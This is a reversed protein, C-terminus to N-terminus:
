SMLHSRNRAERVHCVPHGRDCARVVHSQCQSDPEVWRRSPPHDVWTSTFFLWICWATSHSSFFKLSENPSGKSDPTVLRTVLFFIEVRSVFKLSENLSENPSENPSGKSDPTVLRTVLFFNRRSQFIKTVRKTVRKTM